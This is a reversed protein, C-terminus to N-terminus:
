TSIIFGSKWFCRENGYIICCYYVVVPLSIIHFTFCHGTFTFLTFILCLGTANIAFCMNPLSGKGKVLFRVVSGPFFHPCVLPPLRCPVPLVRVLIERFWQWLTIVVHNAPCLGSCPCRALTYVKVTITTTLQMTSQWGPRPCRFTFVPTRLVPLPLGWLLPLIPALKRYSKLSICTQIFTRSFILPYNNCDMFSICRLTMYPSIIKVSYFLFHYGAFIFECFCICNSYLWTEPLWGWSGRIPKKFFPSTGASRDFNGRQM